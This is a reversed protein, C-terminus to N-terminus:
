HRMSTSQAAQPGAWRMKEQMLDISVLRRSLQDIPNSPMRSYSGKFPANVISLTSAKLAQLDPYTSAANSIHQLM